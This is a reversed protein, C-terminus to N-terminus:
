SVVVVELKKINTIPCLITLFSSHSTDNHKLRVEQSTQLVNQGSLHNTDLLIQRALQELAPGITTWPSDKSSPAFNWAGHRNPHCQQVQQQWKWEGEPAMGHFWQVTSETKMLLIISSFLCVEPPKLLSESHGPINHLSNGRLLPFVSCDQIEPLMPTFNM